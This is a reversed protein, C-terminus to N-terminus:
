GCASFVPVLIGASGSRQFSGSSTANCREVLPLMTCDEKLSYGTKHIQVLPTVTHSSTVQGDVEVWTIVHVAVIVITAPRKEAGFVQPGTAGNTNMGGINNVNGTYCLLFFTKYWILHLLLLKHPYNTFNRTCTAKYILLTYDNCSMIQLTQQFPKRRRHTRNSGFGKFSAKAYFMHGWSSQSRWNCPIVSTLLASAATPTCEDSTPNQM